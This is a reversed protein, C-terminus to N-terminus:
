SEDCVEMYAKADSPAACEGPLILSFKSGQGTDTFQIDGGLVDASKKVMYLGLGSGYSTRPHFRKFMTFMKGQQDVPIGLGNDEVSIIIRDGEKHATIRVHSSRKSRDQYKIANSLLNDIILQLRNKHTFLPNALRCDYNVQLRDFDELNTLKSISDEILESLNLLQRNEDENKTKTLRLIDSVLKELKQLSSSVMALASLAKDSQDAHICREVVKLLGISSMLPSRLDHSTRYAFEELERNVSLLDQEARRRETIDRFVLVAGTNQGDESNLPASTYEVPVPHGDKHWFVQQDESHPRGHLLAACINCQEKACPTGDILSHHTLDHHSVNLMEEITYGLIEEAAKNAFTTHGNLNVGYIGEGANELLITMRQESTALDRSRQEALLSAMQGYKRLSRSSIWSLTSLLMGCLLIFWPVFGNVHPAFGALATLKIDWAHQGISVRQQGALGTRLEAIANVDLLSANSYILKDERQGDGDYVEILLHEFQKAIPDMLQRVRFLGYVFADVDEITRDPKDPHPLIPLYLIFGSEDRHANADEVLVINETIAPRNTVAALTIARRRSDDSWMDYGHVKRNAADFPELYHAVVYLEREGRPYIEFNPFGSARVQQEYALKDKHKVIKAVAFATIANFHSELSLSQSYKRWEERDVNQSASYLGRGGLFLEQYNIISHDLESAVASQLRALHDRTEQQNAQFALVTLLITVFALAWPVPWIRGSTTLGNVAEM